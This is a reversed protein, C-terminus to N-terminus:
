CDVLWEAVGVLGLSDFVSGEGGDALEELGVREELGCGGVGL